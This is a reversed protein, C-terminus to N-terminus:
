LEKRYIRYTKYRQGGISEIDTRMKINLEGITSGEGHTYGKEVGRKFIHYYIAHAVGKKHFAPVVFMAFVRASTIKRRYHLYKLLALPTLRGNLHILVQNYDPLAAAFGIPIDDARAIAVFDPDAISRLREV